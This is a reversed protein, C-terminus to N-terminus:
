NIKQYRSINLLIGAQALTIFLATGGHSVFILPIGSLPFLGLSSSINIMSGTVILIVIGVALLGGFMDPARTAIKFGRFAFFVYLLIIGVSGVFGFEEAAVAFISDGIPEPLFNFKQVSQGFGRGTLGGSGIAIMSQQIQYGQGTPDHAPNIFTEIRDMVYPRAMALIAIGLIGAAFILLLDRIRAGAIVHMVLGTLVIVGFTATDPETLLLAATIGCLVLYAGTGYKFTKVKNKVNSLWAAFFIVFAIKYIESPQFSVFRLNVWRTAGGHEFGIGPIFVLLLLFIGFILIPLAYKKWLLYPIRSTIFMAISGGILGFVTQNLTVSKFLTQTRALLGLSASSFIFFGGIM